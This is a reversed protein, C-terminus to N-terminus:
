NVKRMQQLIIEEVQVGDPTDLAYLVAKAVELPQLKPLEAVAESYVSLFETDVMGPCISTLKINLKLFHIEQRVTQCLATIAHKTAPYVSFLPVPVEPIRHGLVSNMVVIHGRVNAEAMLKLGERLCSATAVVNTDFLEKIDKTSSESLFNAKLIGANCVLVHICHFKERIWTFASTLQLEDNLDCEYAFIKGEGKVQDNLTEILRVRRALGVVSMGANALLVATSAGIGVSAGTVVAVKNRWYSNEM